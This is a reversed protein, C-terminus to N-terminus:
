VSYPSYLLVVCILIGLPEFWFGQSDFKVGRKEYGVDSGDAFGRLEVKLFIWIGIM